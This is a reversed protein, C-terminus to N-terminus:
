RLLFAAAAQAWKASLAPMLGLTLSTLAILVMSALMFGGADKPQGRHGHGGHVEIREEGYFIKRVLGLTYLATLVGGAISVMTMAVGVTGVGAAFIQWESMFGALPPAGALTLAAITMFLMTIPMKKGLGGLESIFHAGTSHILVGISMFLLAKGLGHALSQMIAGTTGIATATGIGFLIYGMQSITSFAAVRKMEDQRLAQIGGYYQNIIGFVMLPLALSKIAAVPIVGGLFRLLGYIGMNMMIASLMISTPLQAESHADPLWVHGPVVAMKVGFGIAVLLGIRQVTIANASGLLRAADAMSSTGTIIMTWIIGTLMLVAGIHTVIFMKLGTKVPDNGQGWYVILATSPILMLEWFLYFLVLDSAFLVGMMSGAFMTQWAFFSSRAQDADEMYGRSYLAVFFSLGSVLVAFIVALPDARFSLYSSLPKMWEYELLVNGEALLAAGLGLSALLQVGTFIVAASRAAKPRLFACVIAGALPVAIAMLMYFGGNGTM